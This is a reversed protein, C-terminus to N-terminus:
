QLDIQHNILVKKIPIPIHMAEVDPIYIFVDVSSMLEHALRALPGLEFTTIGQLDIAIPERSIRVKSILCTCLGNNLTNVKVTLTPITCYEM